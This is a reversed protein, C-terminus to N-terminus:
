QFDCSVFGLCRVRICATTARQNGPPRGASAFLSGHKKVGRTPSFMGHSVNIFLFHFTWVTNEDFAKRALRVRRMALRSIRTRETFNVHGMRLDDGWPELAFDLSIDPMIIICNALLSWCIVECYRSFSRSSVLNLDLPSVLPGLAVDRYTFVKQRVMHVTHRYSTM